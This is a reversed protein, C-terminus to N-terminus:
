RRCRGVPRAAVAVRHNGAFWNTAPNMPSGAIFRTGTRTRSRGTTENGVVLTREGAERRRSWSPVRQGGGSMRPEVRPRGIPQASQWQVRPTRQPSPLRGLVARHVAGTVSCWRHRRAVPSLGVEGPRKSRPCSGDTSRDAVGGGTQGRSRHRSRGRPTRLGVRWVLGTVTARAGVSRHPEM